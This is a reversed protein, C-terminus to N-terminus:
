DKYIKINTHSILCLVYGLIYSFWQFEIHWIEAIIASVICLIIVGLAQYWEYFIFLLAILGIALVSGFIIYLWM